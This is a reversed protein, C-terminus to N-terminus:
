RSVSSVSLQDGQMSGNLTVTGWKATGSADTFVNRFKDSGIQQRLMQNSADDLVLLRGESHIAFSATSPKVM